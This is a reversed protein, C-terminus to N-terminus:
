KIQRLDSIVRQLREILEETENYIEKNPSIKNSFEM